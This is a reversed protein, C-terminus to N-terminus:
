RTIGPSVTITGEVVRHIKGSPTHTIEVDFMYRGPAIAGTQTNTMLLEIQGVEGNHSATFEYYVTSAYSKRMQAAVTHSTLDFVNGVADVVDIVSEFDTGQDIILNAKIAM